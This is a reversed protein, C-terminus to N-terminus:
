VIDLAREDLADDLDGERIALWHRGYPLAMVFCSAAVVRQTQDSWSWGGAAGERYLGPYALEVAELVAEFSPMMKAKSAGALECIIQQRSKM